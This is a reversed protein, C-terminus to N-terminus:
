AREARDADNMALRLLGQPEKVEESFASVGIVIADQVGAAGVERTYLQAFQKRINGSVVRAGQAPTNPLLLVFEGKRESIFLLDIKRLQEKLALSFAILIEDGEADGKEPAPLRLVLVSLPLEYRRARLFEELLRQKLYDATYAQIIEDVILKSKTDRHIRANVLSAGCWDAIMSVMKVSEPTFKLFPMRDVAVVGLSTSNSPHHIPAAILPEGSPTEGKLYANLSVTEGQELARDIMGGQSPAVAPAEAGEPRIAAKLKLQEDDLMYVSCEEVQLYERLLDLAAPGIDQEDLSRLAQAAEYLTYLTQEQSIIRGDIEQKAKDLAQYQKELREFSYQLDNKQLDLEEYRRIQQERIEGFVIGAVIFLLPQGWLGMESLELPAPAVRLAKFGIFFLAACLGSWFGGAFGYRLAILTVVLWYPHPSAKSYGIDDGFLYFNVVSVLVLGLVVEVLWSKAVRAAGRRGSLSKGTM